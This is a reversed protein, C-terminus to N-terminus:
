QGSSGHASGDEHIRPWSFDNDESALVIVKRALSSVYHHWNGRKGQVSKYIIRAKAQVLPEFHCTAQLERNKRERFILRM